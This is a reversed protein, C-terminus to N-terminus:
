RVLQHAELDLLAQKRALGGGYGGLGGGAAIVRHCPIIIAVPNRGNASGVARSAGPHGTLEALERYSITSGYPIEALTRWVNRQFDTGRVALEVDFAQLDGAFYQDLQESLNALPSGTADDPLWQPDPTPRHVQDTMFLGTVARETGVILLEGVPSDVITFNRPASVAVEVFKIM